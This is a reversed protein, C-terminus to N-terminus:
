GLTLIKFPFCVWPRVTLRTERRSERGKGRGRRDERSEEGIRDEEGEKRDEDEEGRRRDKGAEREM